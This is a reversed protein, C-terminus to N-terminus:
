SLINKLTELIPKVRNRYEPPIMLVQIQHNRILV